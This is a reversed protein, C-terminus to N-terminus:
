REDSGVSPRPGFDACIASVKLGNSRIVHLMERIREATLNEPATEGQTMYMQLGQVGLEAAKEVAKEFPLLFSEMMAGIPFKYM